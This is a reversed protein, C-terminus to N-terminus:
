RSAAVERIIRYVFESGERMSQIAVREHYSADLDTVILRPPAKPPHL